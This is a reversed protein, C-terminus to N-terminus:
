LLKVADEVSASDHVIACIAALMGSINDRQWVNRGMCVGKGGADMSDKIMALFEEDSGTKPGGAALVPVTATETVERYSEM